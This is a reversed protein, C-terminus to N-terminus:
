LVLVRLFDAFFTLKDIMLYLMNTLIGMPINFVGLAVLLLVLFVLEREHSAVKWYVESPLFQCLVNWGDLPPIPLLNFVALSLNTSVMFKLINIIFALVGIPVLAYSIFLLKYLLLCVFAMLINSVPGALSTVIIGKKRDRFNLSNVPVAKAFGFGFFLLMMVGIPDMHEFPNLTLRKRWKATPDGMKEAAWAHAYEHVPIATVLVLIRALIVPVTLGFM